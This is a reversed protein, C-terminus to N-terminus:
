AIADPQDPALRSLAAGALQAIQELFDTGMDTTFRREDNSGLVLLGISQQADPTRLPLLALSAPAEGLWAAADQATVPGCYPKHLSAAYSRTEQAVDQMYEGEPLGALGWLRLAISDLEFQRSLTSLILDPIRQADPEALMHSCWDTVGQHIRQNGDAHRLLQDLHAERTQLRARLALIQREALSIVGPSHPHPVELTAFVDAHESLFDPNRSLFEAIERARSTDPTM